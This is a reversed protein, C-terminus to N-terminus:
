KIIKKKMDPGGCEGGERGEGVRGVAGVDINYSAKFLWPVLMM